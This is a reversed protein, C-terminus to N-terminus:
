TELKHPVTPLDRRQHHRPAASAWDVVGGRAVRGIAQLYAYAGLAAKAGEGASVVIQKQAVTTVDGAAFLGPVNTGNDIPNIIIQNREDLPLLGSVLGPNVTLGIEVFVGGVPITERRGGREVVLGTVTADGEIAVTKTRTMIRVNPTQALRDVLVREGHLEGNITILSVTPCFAALLLAADMASNGGGAVAVARGKFLPADCTACYSVGKGAFREEGPVDLHRRTLGHALILTRSRYAGEAAGVVFWQGDRTTRRVDDLIVTAGFREAQAKMTLMLALGDVRELGPYNEVAAATAAQGGIDQSVVLVRLNRRAAYLAATLGAAGAGVVIVDYEAM